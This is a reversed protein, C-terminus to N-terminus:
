PSLRWHGRPEAVEQVLGQMAARTLWMDVVVQNLNELSTFARLYALLETPTFFANRTADDAVFVSFRRRPNTLSAGGKQTSYTWTEGSIEMQKALGESLHRKSPTFGSDPAAVIAAIGRKLHLYAAIQPVAIM